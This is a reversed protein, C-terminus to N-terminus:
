GCHSHRNIINIKVVFPVSTVFNESIKIKTGKTSETTLFEQLIISLRAKFIPNKLIKVVSKVVLVSLIPIQFTFAYHSPNVSAIERYKQCKGLIADPM